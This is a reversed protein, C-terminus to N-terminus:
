YVIIKGFQNVLMGLKMFMQFWNYFIVTTNLTIIAVLKQNRMRLKKIAASESKMGTYHLIIFKIKKKPRKPLSFNISYKRALKIGIKSSM